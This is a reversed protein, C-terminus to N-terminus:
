MSVPDMFEEVMFVMFIPKLSHKKKKKREHLGGEHMHDIRVHRFDEM